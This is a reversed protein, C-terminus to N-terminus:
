ARGALGNTERVYALAADRLSDPDREGDQALKIIRLALTERVEDLESASLAPAGGTSTLQEWACDFAQGLHTATTTDFPEFRGDRHHTAM